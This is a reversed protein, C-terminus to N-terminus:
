TDAETANMYFVNPMTGAEPRLVWFENGSTHILKYAPTAPDTLDGFIRVGAPCAACCATTKGGSEKLKTDFCFNCKDIARDEEKFYRANYPCAAMCTKCGICKDQNMLVIGNQGDKYTAGTPCVRVCHPENCQNCLVPMFAHAPQGQAHPIRRELILTRYGYIPVSNTTRCADLCRECDICFNQRIVMTYHPSYPYKAPQVPENILAGQVKDASTLSLISGGVFVGTIALGFKMFKRREESAISEIGENKMTNFKFRKM